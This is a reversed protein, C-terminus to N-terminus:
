TKCNKYLIGALNAQLKELMVLSELFCNELSFIEAAVTITM